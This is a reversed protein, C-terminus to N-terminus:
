ISAPIEGSVVASRLAGCRIGSSQALGRNGPAEADCKIFIVKPALERAWGQLVPEMMRCPGCWSASFDLVVLQRDGSYFWCYIITNAKDVSLKAPEMMLSLPRFRSAWCGATVQPGPEGNCCQIAM